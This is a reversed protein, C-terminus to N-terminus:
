KKLFKPPVVFYELLGNARGFFFPEGRLIANFYLELSKMDKEDVWFRYAILIEVNDIDVPYNHTGFCKLDRDVIFYTEFVDNPLGALNIKRYPEKQLELLAKNTVENLEKFYYIPTTDFKFM